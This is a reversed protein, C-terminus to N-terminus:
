LHSWQTEGPPRIEWGASAAVAIVFGPERQCLRRVTATMREEIQQRDMYEAKKERAKRAALEDAAILMQTLVCYSRLASCHRGRAKADDIAAKWARALQPFGNFEHVMESVLSELANPGENRNVELAASTFAHIRAHCRQRRRDRLYENNCLRCISHRQEGGKRRLRFAGIPLRQRCRSCVRTETVIGETLRRFLYDDELITSSASM